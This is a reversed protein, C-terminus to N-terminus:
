GVAKGQATQRAEQLDWRLQIGLWIDAALGTAKELKLAIGPTVRRTRSLIESIRGQPLGSVRALDNQSWNRRKMCARIRDSPHEPYFKEGAM